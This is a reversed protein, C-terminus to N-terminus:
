VIRRECRFCHWEVPESPDNIQQPKPHRCRLLRWFYKGFSDHWVHKSKWFRTCFVRWGMWQGGPYRHTLCFWVDFGERAQM